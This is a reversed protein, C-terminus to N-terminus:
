KRKKTERPISPRAAPDFPYLLQFYQFKAKGSKALRVVEPIRELLHDGAPASTGEQRSKVVADYLERYPSTGLQLQEYMQPVNFSQNYNVHDIPRGDKGLTPVLRAWDVDVHFTEAGLRPYFGLAGMRDLWPPDGIQWFGQGSLMPQSHPIPSSGFRTYNEVVSDIFLRSLGAGRLGEKEIVFNAIHHFGKPKYREAEPLAFKDFWKHGPIGDALVNFDVQERIRGTNLNNYMSTFFFLGDEEKSVLLTGIVERKGDGADRSMVFRHGAKGWRNKVGYPSILEQQVREAVQPPLYGGHTYKADQLSRSLLSSVATAMEPEDMSAIGLEIEMTLDKGSVPDKAPHRITM